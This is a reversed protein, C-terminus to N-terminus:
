GLLKQLLAELEQHSPNVAIIKGTKDLLFTNPIYNINWLGAIAGKADNVHVWKTADEKIAQKWSAAEDDLSIGYVEFGKTQFKAYTKKLEPISRRCPGCWSAWFDILVIKGKLSSLTISKGKADPLTIENAKEGVKPQAFSFLCVFLMVIVSVSKKM